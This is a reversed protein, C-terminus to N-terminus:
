RLDCLIIDDLIHKTSDITDKSCELRIELAQKKDEDNTTNIVHNYFQIDNFNKEMVRDYRIIMKISKNKQANKAIAVAAVKSFTTSVLKNSQVDFIIYGKTKSYRIAYNGVRILKGKFEPIYYDSLKTEIIDELEKLAEKLNKM